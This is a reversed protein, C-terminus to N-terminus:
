EVGIIVSVEHVLESDYVRITDSIRFEDLYVQAFLTADDKAAIYVDEKNNTWVNSYDSTLTESGVLISNVFV